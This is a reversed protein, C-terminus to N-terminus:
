YIGMPKELKRTLIGHPVLLTGYLKLKFVIIGGIPTNTTFNGIFDPPIVLIARYPIVFISFM